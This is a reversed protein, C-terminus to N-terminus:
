QPACDPNMQREPKPEKAQKGKFADYRKRSEIHEDFKEVFKLSEKSPTTLSPEKGAVLKAIHMQCDLDNPLLPAMIVMMEVERVEHILEIYPWDKFKTAKTPTFSPDVRRRLEDIARIDAQRTKRIQKPLYPEEADDAAADALRSLTIQFEKVLKRDVDNSIHAPMSSAISAHTQPEPEKPTTTAKPASAKSNATKTSIDDKPPPKIPDETAIDTWTAGVEFDDRISVGATVREWTDLRWIYAKWGEEQMTEVVDSRLWFTATNTKQLWKFTTPLHVEFERMSKVAKSRDGHEDDLM